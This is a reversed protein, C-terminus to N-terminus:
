KKAEATETESKPEMPNDFNHFCWFDSLSKACASM